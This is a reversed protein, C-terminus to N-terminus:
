FIFLLVTTCQFAGMIRPCSSYSPDAQGARQLDNFVMSLLKLFPSLFILLKRASWGDETDELLQLLRDSNLQDQSVDRVHQLPPPLGPM